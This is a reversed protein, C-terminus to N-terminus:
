EMKEELLYNFKKGLEFSHAALDEATGDVQVQALIGIKGQLYTPLIDEQYSFTWIASYIWSLTPRGPFEEQILLTLRFQKENAKTAIRFLGSKVMQKELAFALKRGMAESGKYIVAIPIKSFGKQKNLSREVQQKDTASSRVQDTLLPETQSSSSDTTSDAEAPPLYWFVPLLM